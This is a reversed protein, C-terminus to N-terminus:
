KGLFRIADSVTKEPIEEMPVHGVGEYVVLKSGPIDRNFNRANDLPIWYDDSGWMILTPSQITGLKTLTEDYDRPTRVRDILARRNGERLAMDYYRDILAETIKSDDGYVERLNKEVLFRPTICRGIFSLPAINLMRFLAPVKAVPYGASDVLIMRDVKGPHTLAYNWCILGGLSNGAIHFKGLELKSLFEDLFKVYARVTYDGSANPGTLGFAPLDMRIVRYKKVLEATWGDWTHLSSSTGHVLVVPFGKGEDRYHVPMGDITMFRSQDNAYKLKLTDLPIDRRVFPLPLIIIIAAIVAAAYVFKKKVPM